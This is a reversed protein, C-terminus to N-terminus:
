QRVALQSQSELKFRPFLFVGVMSGTYKQETGISEGICFVPQKHGTSLSVTTSFCFSSSGTAAQEFLDLIHARDHTDYCRMLTLLGCETSSLGHIIASQEGLQIVGNALDGVWGDSVCFQSVIDHDVGALAPAVSLFPTALNVKAIKFLSNGM